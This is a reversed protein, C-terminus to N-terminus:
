NSRISIVVSCISSYSVDDRESYVNPINDDLILTQYILDISEFYDKTVKNLLYAGGIIFIKGYDMTKIEEFCENLSRFCLVDEVEHVEEYHNKSIVINIRNKLPKGISIWTNYGMIIINEHNNKWWNGM